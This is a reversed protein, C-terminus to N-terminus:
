HLEIRLLTRDVQTEGRHHRQHLAPERRRAAQGDPVDADRLCVVDTQHVAIELKVDGCAGRRGKPLLRHVVAVRDEFRSRGGALVLDTLSTVTPRSSPLQTSATKEACGKRICGEQLEVTGSSSAKAPLLTRMGSWLMQMCPGNRQAQPPLPSARKSHVGRDCLRRRFHKLALVLQSALVLEQHARRKHICRLRSAIGMSTPMVMFSGAASNNNSTVLADQLDGDSVPGTLEPLRHLSCTSFCMRPLSM